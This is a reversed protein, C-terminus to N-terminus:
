LAHFLWTKEGAFMLKIRVKEIARCTASEANFLSLLVRVELREEEYASYNQALM